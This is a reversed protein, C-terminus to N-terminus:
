PTEEKGTESKGPLVLSVARRDPQFISAAAERIRNPTVAQMREAFKLNYDYGLGYLENLACTQALGGNDQLSMDQAALIRKKARDIEEERLGKKALRATEADILKEVQGATDERAGAYLAFLGPESGPRNFAGIYYVLGRKERVAAGMDSSLGSLANEIVTLADVRPDKLDVGPYGVLLITQEKPERRKSRCPLNPKPRANRLQPAPGDPAEALYHEALQRAREKTIDGFISLVLNSKVLQQKFHRALADRKLGQV